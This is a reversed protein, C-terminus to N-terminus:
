SEVRAKAQDSLLVFDENALSHEYINLVKIAEVVELNMKGFVEVNWVKLKNKLLKLKEKFIFMKPGHIESYKLVKEM